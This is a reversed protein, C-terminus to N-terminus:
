QGNFTDVIDDENVIVYLRAGSEQGVIREGVIFDGTVISLELSNALVWSKVRLQTGSQSGIITENFVFTGSGGNTNGIGGVM